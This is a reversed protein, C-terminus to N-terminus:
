GGTALRAHFDIVRRATLDLMCAAHAVTRFEGRGWSAYSHRCAADRYVEWTRQATRLTETASDIGLADTENAADVEGARMRMRPWLRNLVVEWADAERALCGTMAETATGGAATQCPDAVIGTCLELVDRPWGTLLCAELADADLDVQGAKAPALSLLIAFVAARLRM